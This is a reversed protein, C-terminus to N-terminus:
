GAGAIAAGAGSASPGGLAHRRLKIVLDPVWAILHSTAVANGLVGDGQPQLCQLEMYLQEAQEAFVRQRAATAGM